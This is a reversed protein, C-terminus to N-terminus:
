KERIKTLQRLMELIKKHRRIPLIINLLIILTAASYASWVFKGYGGMAFFEAWNM